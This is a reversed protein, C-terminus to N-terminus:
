GPGAAWGAGKSNAEPPTLSRTLSSSIRPTDPRSIKSPPSITHFHQALLSRRYNFEIAAPPEYLSTSPVYTIIREDSNPVVISLWQTPSRRFIFAAPWRSEFQTAMRCTLGHLSWPPDKSDSASADRRSESQRSLGRAKHYYTLFLCWIRDM